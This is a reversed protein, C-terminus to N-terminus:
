IPSALKSGSGPSDVPDELTWSWEGHLPDIADVQVQAWRLWAMAPLRRVEPLHEIRDSASKLFRRLTEVKEWRGAIDILAKQKREVEKREREVAEWEKWAVKRRQNEAERMERAQKLILAVERIGIVVKRLMTDLRGKSTDRWKTRTGRAQWDDISICIDGTWELTRTYERWAGPANRVKKAVRLERIKIKMEVGDVTVVTPAGVEGSWSWGERETTKILADMIRNARNLSQKSVVMDLRSGAARWPYRQIPLWKLLSHRARLVDSVVIPPELLAQADTAAGSSTRSATSAFTVVAPLDPDMPLQPAPPRSGASKQWYGSGPVPIKARRCAKAISVNSVGLEDQLHSIPRSWVMRYLDERSVIRVESM